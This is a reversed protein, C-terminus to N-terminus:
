LEPMAERIEIPLVLPFRRWVQSKREAKAIVEIDKWRCGIHPDDTWEVGRVVAVHLRADANGIRRVSALLNDTRAIAKEGAGPVVAVQHDAPM